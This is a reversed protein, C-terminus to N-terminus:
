PYEGAFLVQRNKGLVEAAFFLTPPKGRLPESRCVVVSQKEQIAESSFVHPPGPGYPPISPLRKGKADTDAALIRHLDGLSRISNARRQIPRYPKREIRMFILCASYNAWGLVTPNTPSRSCASPQCPCYCRQNPAIQKQVFVSARRTASCPYGTRTCRIWIM